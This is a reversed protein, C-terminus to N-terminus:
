TGILSNMTTLNATSTTNLEGAAAKDRLSRILSVRLVRDAQPSDPLAELAERIRDVTPAPLGLTGALTDQQSFGATMQATQTADLLPALASRTASNSLTVNGGADMHTDFLANRQAPTLGKVWDDGVITNFEGFPADSWTTPGAPASYKAIIGNVDGSTRLADNEPLALETAWTM